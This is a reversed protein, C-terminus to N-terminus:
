LKINAGIANPNNTDVGKAKLATVVDGPIVFVQVQVLKTNTFYTADKGNTRIIMDINGAAGTITANSTLQPVSYFTTEFTRTIPASRVGGTVNQITMPGFPTATIAGAFNTGSSITWNMVVNGNLNATSALVVPTAVQDTGVTTVGAGLYASGMVATPTLAFPNVNSIGPTTYGGPGTTPLVYSNAYATLDVWGANTGGHQMLVNNTAAVNTNATYYKYKVFVKGDQKYKEYNPVLANLDFKTQATYTAAFNSGSTEAAIQVDKTRAFNVTQGVTLENPNVPTYANGPNSASTTAKAYTWYGFAAGLNDTLRAIDTATLNFTTNANATNGTYMFRAGITFPATGFDTYVDAVADFVGSGPTTEFIM